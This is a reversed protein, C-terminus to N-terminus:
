HKSTWSNPPDMEMANYTNADDLAKNEESLHLWYLRSKAYM